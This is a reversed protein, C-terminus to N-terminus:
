PAPDAYSEVVFPTAESRQDADELSPDGGEMHSHLMGHAVANYTEVYANGDQDEWRLTLTVVNRGTFAEAPIVFVLCAELPGEHGHIGTEWECVARGSPSANPAVVFSAGLADAIELSPEFTLVPRASAVGYPIVHLIVGDGERTAVAAEGVPPVPLPVAPELNAHVMMVFGNGRSEDAPGAAAPAVAAVIALAAVLIPFKM